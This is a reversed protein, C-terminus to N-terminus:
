RAVELGEAPAKGEAADKDATDLECLLDYVDDAYGPSDVGFEAALAVAARHVALLDAIVHERTRNREAEEDTQFRGCYICVGETGPAPVLVHTPVTLRIPTITM